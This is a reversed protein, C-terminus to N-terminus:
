ATATATLPAVAGNRSETYNRPVTWTVTVVLAQRQVADKKPVSVWVPADFWRQV